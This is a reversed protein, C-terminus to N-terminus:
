KRHNTDNLELGFSYTCSFNYTNSNIIANNSSITLTYGYVTYDTRDKNNNQIFCRDVYKEYSTNVTIVDNIYQAIINIIDKILPTSDLLYKIHEPYKKELTLVRDENDSHAILEQIINKNKLHINSM